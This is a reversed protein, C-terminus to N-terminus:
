QPGFDLQTGTALTDGNTPPSFGSLHYTLIVDARAPFQITLVAACALALNRAHM